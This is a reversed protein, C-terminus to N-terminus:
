IIAGPEGYRLFLVDLECVLDLNRRVMPVFRLNGARFVASDETWGFRGQPGTTPWEWQPWDAWDRGNPLKPLIPNYRYLELLQPHIARRILHKEEIRSNKSASPLPGDYYLTFRM